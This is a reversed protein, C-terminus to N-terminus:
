GALLQTSSPERKPSKPASLHERSNQTLVRLTDLLQTKAGTNPERRAEHCDGRKDESIALPRVPTEYNCSWM